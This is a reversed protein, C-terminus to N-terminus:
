EDNLVKQVAVLQREEVGVGSHVSGEAHERWGVLVKQAARGGNQLYTRRGDPTSTNGVIDGCGAGSASGRVSKPM